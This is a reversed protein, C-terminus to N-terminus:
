LEAEPDMGLRELLAARAFASDTAPVAIFSDAASPPAWPARGLRRAALMSYYSLGSRREVAEWKARATASDGADSWARGSWYEATLAESSSPHRKVLEDWEGAATRHSGSAYAILAARFAASAGLTSAPYREAVERFASHAPGDRGEDTALDALLYLAHSAAEKDGRHDSIVQRLATRAAAGQGARLLSRAHQYAASAALSAPSKM